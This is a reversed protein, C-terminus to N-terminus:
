VDVDDKTSRKKMENPSPKAGSTRLGQPRENSTTPPTINDARRRTESSPPSRTAGAEAQSSDPVVAGYRSDYRKETLDRFNEPTLSGVLQASHKTSVAKKVNFLDAVTTVVLQDSYDDAIAEEIIHIKQESVETAVKCVELCQKSIKIDDQLRLREKSNDPDGDLILTQLRQQLRGIIEAFKDRSEDMTQRTELQAEFAKQIVDESKNEPAEQLLSSEKKISSEIFAKADECVRLCKETVAREDQLDISDDSSQATEIGSLATKEDIRQLLMKLEYMTNKTLEM